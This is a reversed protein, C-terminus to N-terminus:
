GGALARSAGRHSRPRAQRDHNGPAGKRRAAAAGGSGPACPQLLIDGLREYALVRHPIPAAILAPLNGSADGTFMRGTRNSGHAGPALGVVVLWAGPDGFGPVPRGWYEETAYAARKTRAVQERWEVLRPCRRCASVETALATLSSM